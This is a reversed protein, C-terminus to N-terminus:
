TASAPTLAPQPASTGTARRHLDDATASGAPDGNSMKTDVRHIHERYAAAEPTDWGIAMGVFEALNDFPNISDFLDRTMRTAAPDFVATVVGDTLTLSTIAEAIRVGSDARERIHDRIAALADDSTANSTPNDTNM